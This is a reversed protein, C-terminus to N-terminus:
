TFVWRRYSWFRFATALGLGVVNAAVNDALPSTLGLAYHSFALCAVAIGLAIASFLVFLAFERHVAATSSRQHRFTWLRNGIYAVTTSATVSLVKATLPRDYLPGEGGAFRLLNFGIVDVALAVVGVAGFRAMEGFLSGRLAAGVRSV